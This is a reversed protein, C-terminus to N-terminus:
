ALIEKLVRAPTVGVLSEDRGEYFFTNKQYDLGLLHQITAHIDAHGVRDEPVAAYGLEDTAGLDYGRKVGAGAMWMNFGYPNHDRGPSSTRAEITPLRGFEGSWVVLTDNLMGRQDLDALLASMGQDIYHCLGPLQPVISSHTDWGGGGYIQVFRVGSEVLRRAMLCHKGFQGSAKDDCGYLKRTEETEASLDAVRMAEVQMRAALEYNAIRAELDQDLPHHAKQERNLAKVMELLKVQQEATMSEPRKIDYIPAQADARMATGSYVPPLWAASHARTGISAGEGLAIYGPMNQNESGLAYNVWAGISPFGTFGRGTVFTFQATSHDIRDTTMSRVFSVKDVVKQFHPLLNSIERGSQGCKTFPWPSAMVQQSGNLARGKIEFPAAQGDYKKLVPKPDFMDITSPGGGVYIFIVNKAKPAFHPKKVRLDYARPAAGFAMMSNLALGGFGLAAEQLAQRRSLFRKM